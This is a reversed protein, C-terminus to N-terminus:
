KKLEAALQELSTSAELTPAVWDGITMVQRFGAEGSPPRFGSLVKEMEAVGDRIVTLTVIDDATLPGAQETVKSLTSDEGVMTNITSLISKVAEERDLETDLHVAEALLTVIEGTAIEAEGLLKVARLREIESKANLLGDVGDHLRDTFLLAFNYREALRQGQDTTHQQQSILMKSYLIVILISMLVIILLLVPVTYTRKGQEPM